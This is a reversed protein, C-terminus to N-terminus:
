DDFHGPFRAAGAEERLLLPVELELRELPACRGQTCAGASVCVVLARAEGAAASIEVAGVIRVAAGARTTTSRVLACGAGQVAVTVDREEDLAWGAVATLQVAFRVPSDPAVVLREVILEAHVGGQTVSSDASTLPALSTEGALYRDLAVLLTATGQPSESMNGRFRRLVGAAADRYHEEGTAESLALLVQAAVGNGSPIAKDYPDQVRTLLVEHSSSTFFFGGSDDRFESLLTACQNKAAALYDAEGTAAHLRLLGYALFAHDDLYARLHAQGGRYSALLGVDTAMKEQVFAASRRAADVYRPENLHAGVDAFAGIMLGNWACLVKDDLHPAIRTRRQALLRTPIAASIEGGSGHGNARYLVNRGNRVGTAEDRFNGEETCGYHAIARAADDAGLTHRLEDCTWVYFLGEEGDSDADLASYFGGAADCMDALVWDCIGRATAAYRAEGTVRHAECYITALQANDYLMKEFHPLFWRSDTSYRHFGGGVQDHIGGEAMADLTKTVVKLLSGNSDRGTAVRRLLLQLSGHPPFKPAGGFGGHDRDFQRELRAVADDVLSADIHTSTGRRGHAQRIRDALDDATKEVDDRRDRWVQALQTLLTKFGTRGGRDEPPFYTGAYWPRGDPTLWVSNPWGGQGTLVQTALMYIDDLDPREERDVKIPVFDADLLRAVEDDEFSEHEMVHCWHCTSYGVSLFIPRDLEKARQLAEDGWPFWGVPNDRHQQLYPSLEDGLRNM